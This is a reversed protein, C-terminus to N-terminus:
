RARRTTILIVGNAGRVGYMTTSTADKLVDIRAVDAPNLWDLGRGPAVFVEVGDVIFLPEGSGSLTSGGRIRVSVGGHPTRRVEVGPFRGVLLDEVRAANDIRVQRQARSIAPSRGGTSEDVAIEVRDAPPPGAAPRNSGSTHCGSMGGLITACCV